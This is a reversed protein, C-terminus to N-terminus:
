HCSMPAGPLRSITAPAFKLATFMLLSPSRTVISKTEWIRIPLMLELFARVQLAPLQHCACRELFRGIAKTNRGAVGGVVLLKIAYDLRLSLAAAGGDIWASPKGLSLISSLLKLARM